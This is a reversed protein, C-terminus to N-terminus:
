RYVFIRDGLRVWRAISRANPIPVRICGHSAPYTPVSKYGHIAYGRIFYISHVMGHSNTGWQKRYFRFTGFVTPTSRKGSSAHYIREARGGRALVLVQRSKDFEVHKGARRYKLRFGGRGRFLRGYVRRNAVSIRRMGNVKRFALVARATGADFRGGTPTVYGLARLGRQLLRVKLGRSGRGAQPFLAEFRQGPAVALRTGDAADIHADVLHRGTRAATVHARFRGAGGSDPTVAVSVRRVLRGRRVLDVTVAQGPAYTRETWEVTLRHGKMVYRSGRDRLGGDLRVSLNSANAARAAPRGAARASSTSGSADAGDAGAPAPERALAAPSLALSAIAAILLPSRRM